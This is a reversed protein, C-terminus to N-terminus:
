KKKPTPAKGTEVKRINRWSETKQETEPKKVQRAPAPTPPVPKKVQRAPAQTPPPSFSIKKFDETMKKIGLAQEGMNTEKLRKTEIMRSLDAVKMRAREAQERKQEEEKKKGIDKVQGLITERAKVIMNTKEIDKKIGEKRKQEQYFQEQKLQKERAMAEQEKTIVPRAVPIMGSFMSEGAPRMINLRDKEAKIAINRKEAESYKREGGVVPERVKEEREKMELKIPPVVPVPVPTPRPAVAPATPRNFKRYAEALAPIATGLGGIIEGINAVTQTTQAPINILPPQPEPILPRPRPRVPEPEVPEPEIPIKKPEITPQQPIPQSVQIPQQYLPTPILLPQAQRPQSPQSPRARARSKGINVIVSQRQAQRQKQQTRLPTRGHKQKAPQKVKKKRPPM